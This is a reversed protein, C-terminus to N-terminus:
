FTQDLNLCSSSDASAYDQDGVCIFYLTVYGVDYDQELLDQLQEVQSLFKHM